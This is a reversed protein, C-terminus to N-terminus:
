GGFIIYERKYISEGCELQNNEEIPDRWNM